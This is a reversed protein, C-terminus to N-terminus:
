WESSWCKWGLTDGEVAYVSAYAPLGAYVPHHSVCCDTCLFYRGMGEPAQEYKAQTKLHHFSSYDFEEVVVHVTRQPRRRIM